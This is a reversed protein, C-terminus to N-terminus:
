RPRDMRVCTPECTNLWLVFNSGTTMALRLRTRVVCSSLTSFLELVFRHYGTSLEYHAGGPLVQKDMESLLERLGFLRWENAQELEPLCVGLWLLGAVDSLYHNSTAIFSFELHSRIFRGHQDFITLLMALRAETLAKSDRLLNFAALLNIARLGVEMACSWNPGFGPRNQDRWGEVQVFVEEAVKTVPLRTPADPTLLYGMRNLEWLVRADAPPNRLAADGHHDSPWRIGSVPDCLWDVQPGFDLEGYGLLSWRHYRVINLAHDLLVLTETPFNERQFASM